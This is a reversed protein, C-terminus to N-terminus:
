VPESRGPSCLKLALHTSIPLVPSSAEAVPWPDTFCHFVGRPMTRGEGGAVEDLAEIVGLGAERSRIVMPLGVKLALEIGRRLVRKQADRPSHEYHYDLGFEGLAVVQPEAAQREIVAWHEPRIAAAEHPHFGLSAYLKPCELRSQPVADHPGGRGFARAFQVPLTITQEVTMPNTDPHTGINIVAQVRAEAARRPVDLLHGEFEPFNLHAHSDCIPEPLETM